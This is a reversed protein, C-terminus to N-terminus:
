RFYHFINQIIMKNNYILPLFTQHIMQIQHAHNDVAQFNVFLKHNIKIQIFFNFSSSNVM